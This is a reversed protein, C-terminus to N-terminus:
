VHRKQYGLWVNHFLLRRRRSMPVEQGDTLQLQGGPYEGYDMVKSVNVLISKHVRYFHADMLSREIDCLMMNIYKKDTGSDSLYHVISLSGKAEFYLINELIYEQLQGKILPLEIKSM